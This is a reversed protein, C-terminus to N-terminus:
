MLNNQAKIFDSRVMIMYEQAAKQTYGLKVLEDIAEEFSIINGVFDLIIKWQRELDDNM